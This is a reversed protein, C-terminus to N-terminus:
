GEFVEYDSAQDSALRVPRMPPIKVDLGDSGGFTWHDEATQMTCSFISSNQSRNLMEDDISSRRLPKSPPSLLDLSEKVYMQPQPSRRNSNHQQEEESVISRPSKRGDAETITSIYSMTAVVATSPIRPPNLEDPSVTTGAMHQLKVGRKPSKRRRDVNKNEQTRKGDGSCTVSSNDTDKAKDEDNTSSPHLLEELCRRVSSVLGIPM